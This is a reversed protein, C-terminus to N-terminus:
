HASSSLCCFFLEIYYIVGGSVFSEEAYVSVGYLPDLCIITLMFISGSRPLENKNNNNNASAKPKCM